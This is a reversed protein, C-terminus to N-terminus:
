TNPYTYCFGMYLIDAMYPETLGTRTMQDLSLTYIMASGVATARASFIEHQLYAINQCIEYKGLLYSNLRQYM